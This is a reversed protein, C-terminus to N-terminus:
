HQKMASTKYPDEFTKPIRSAMIENVKPNLFPTYADNDSSEERHRDHDVDMSDSCFDSNTGMLGEKALKTNLAVQYTGQELKM